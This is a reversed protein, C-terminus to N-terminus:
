AFSVASKRARMAFGVMGFGALMMAWTAAEPVAAANLTGISQNIYHGGQGGVLTFSGNGNSFFNYEVGSATGVMWGYVDAAGTDYYVQDYAFLGDLTLINGPQNPNPFLDNIASGIITGTISTIDHGGVSNLADAFTVNFDATFGSGDTAAYHGLFNGAQAPMAVLSVGAALAALVFKKM